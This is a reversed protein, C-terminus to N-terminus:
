GKLLRWAAIVQRNYSAFPSVQECCLTSMDTPKILVGEEMSEAVGNFVGDALYATVWFNRGDEGYCPGCYIPIIDTPNLLIGVEEHIERCACAATSEGTDQKGGPIGWKTPDNRRSVALIEEITNGTPIVVCAAQEWSQKM